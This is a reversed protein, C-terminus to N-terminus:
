LNSATAAAKHDVMLCRDQVVDVGASLVRELFAESAVIGSQLWVVRPPPSMALLDPVHADCDEARRFVDVIDVAGVAALERVVPTGLIETVQPYFTPVPVVEVGAEAASTCAVVRRSRRSRRWWNKLTPRPRWSLSFTLFQSVSIRLSLCLLPRADAGISLLTMMGVGYACGCRSLVYVPVQPRLSRASRRPERATVCTRRRPLLPVQSDTFTVVHLHRCSM